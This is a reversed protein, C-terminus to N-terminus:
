WGGVSRDSVGMQPQEDEGAAARQGATSSDQQGTCLIAASIAAILDMFLARFIALQTHSRDHASHVPAPERRRITQDDSRENHKNTTCTFTNLSHSDISLCKSFNIFSGSNRFSPIGFTYQCCSNPRSEIMRLCFSSSFFAFPVDSSEGGEM